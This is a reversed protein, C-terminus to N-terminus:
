LILETSDGRDSEALIRVPKGKDAVKILVQCKGHFTRRVPSGPIEHDSPDGNATGLIRGNSVRFTLECDEFPVLRGEKDVMEADAIRFSGESFGNKLRVRVAEGASELRKEMCKVGDQYGVALLVGPQYTVQEWLLYGDREMRKRGQSSGNVFLEVESCNSFVYVDRKEGATGNWDPFVHLVEQKSWWAQYYYFFDKPYGCLDMAGFQSSIAPWAYPTPEGYYDFGTWLFLGSVWDPRCAQWKEAGKMYSDATKDTIALHCKERDTIYCGRTSKFTSQETCIMPRDPHLRHFEEWCREHYNFGTVDLKSSIGEIVQHDHYPRKNKLDWMLLAMTVPTFPDLAKIHEILTGAIRAGQITTQSQAEENGISYLIVSPHNRDRKVMCELQELDGKESSLIRHEDMVLIGEEDCIDLLEPTPPYHSTRYANAGMEKLKKIRYRYLEDPMASGVGGHNQHCCVGKIKTQVGNLLFGKDADFRIERIGFRVNEADKQEGNVFLLLRATYLYPKETDWLKVQKLKVSLRARNGTVTVEECAAREGEPSFIEARLKIESAQEAEQGPAELGWDGQHFGCGEVEAEITILSEGKALDVSSWVFPNEIHEKETLLLYVHRYIGGGEYFWGESERADAKVSLVNDGGFLVLDTIDWVQKKYGSRESGVMFENLWVMSNRYIGDFVLYVKRGELEKDLTFHRRYWGAQKQFSGATTHMNNVDEMAPIANDEDFEKETYAIPKTEIVFDHPLEVTRFGSDDFGRSEPGQNWSGSKGWAWRNRISVIDGYHFKWDRDLSIRERSM